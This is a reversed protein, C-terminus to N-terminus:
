ELLHIERLVGKYFYASYIEWVTNKILQRYFKIEGIFDDCFKWEFNFQNFYGKLLHDPEDVWEMCYTNHWLTGDERIEYNDLTQSPTDRTQYKNGKYTIYDFMGM